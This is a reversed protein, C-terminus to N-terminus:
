SVRGKKPTDLKKGFLARLRAFRARRLLAARAKVAIRAYEEHVMAEADSGEPIRYDGSRKRLYVAGNPDLRFVLDLLVPKM